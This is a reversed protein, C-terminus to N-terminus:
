EVSSTIGQTCQECQCHKACGGITVKCGEKISVICGNSVTVTANEYVGDILKESAPLAEKEYKLCRITYKYDKDKLELTQTKDIVYCVQGTEPNVERKYCEIKDFLADDNSADNLCNYMEEFATAIEGYKVVTGKLWTRSNTWELGRATLILKGNTKTAKVYECSTGDSLILYTHKGESLANCLKNSSLCLEQGDVDNIQVATTACIGPVPCLDKSM